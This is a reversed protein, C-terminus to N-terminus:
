SQGSSIRAPSRSSKRTMVTSSLRTGGASVSVRSVTSGMVKYTVKKLPNKGSHYMATVTAMPPPYFAWVQDARFDNTKLWLALNM